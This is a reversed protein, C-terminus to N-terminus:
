IRGSGCQEDEASVDGVHSCLLVESAAIGGLRM